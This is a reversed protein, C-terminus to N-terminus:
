DVRAYREEGAGGPEGLARVRRALLQDNWLGAMIRPWYTQFAFYSGGVRRAWAKAKHRGHAWIGLYALHEPTVLAKRLATKGIRKSVGPEIWPAPYPELSEPRVQRMGITANAVRLKAVEYEWRFVDQMFRAARSPVEPPLHQVRWQNDFWVDHGTMRLNLLYDLDEGRTIVPDFAVSCFAPASVAFCGGFVVNSRTIRTGSLAHTMWENFRERRSWHRESWPPRGVKALPSGESNLYYGTKAEIALGQRTQMGLGYVADLLFNEDLAVEDDDLFVVVDHGLLAAVALGMNRIAGYGRLSVAEGGLRPAVRDIADRVLRAERSGVVLPNLNPHTRCINDVRARASAESEPPSVLLVVVRLVGRVMELSDLCTELEPLPKDIPTAHDYVGVEGFAAPRDRDTWYSPIVIVPNVPRGM